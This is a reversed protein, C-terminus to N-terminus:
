VSSCIMSKGDLRTRLNCPHSQADGPADPRHRPRRQLGAGAFWECLKGWWANIRTIVNFNQQIDQAYRQQLAPTTSHYAGVAAWTNGYRRVARGYLRAGALINTCPQMVTQTTLGLAPLNRSNIQMVGYDTSGDSNRHVRWPLFHSEHWAIAMLVKANVGYTQAAHSFCEGGLPEAQVPRVQALNVLLLM